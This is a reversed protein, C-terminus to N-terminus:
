GVNDRFLYNMTFRGQRSLKWLSTSFFVNRGMIVPQGSDVDDIYGPFNAMPFVQFYHLSSKDANTVRM